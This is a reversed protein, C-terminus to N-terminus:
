IKKKRPVFLKVRNRLVEVDIDGELGEEGDFDWVLERNTHIRVHAGRMIDIDKKKVKMGVVMFTVLSFYAGIKQFFNPRKAQKILVLELTGDQMSADKNVPFGALSRGNLVFALVGDTAFQKGGCEGELPFVELKMNKALGRFFYAFWGLVKKQNQPTQYTVCTLSGAAAVYMAYRAGNIRMCDLRESRGKLIVDLAGRVSRPIGLSRAVDNATGTPLYGLQVDQDGLGQLVNNFTGDGGSFVILDYKLAGERVRTEMDNASSTAVIDVTEYASGLRKGIYKLKRRVVGKGSNPNYLFLCKM